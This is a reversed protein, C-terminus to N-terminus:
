TKVEITKNQFIKDLVTLIESIEYPKYIIWYAGLDILKKAIMDSVNATVMVVKANIDFQRIKELGYIGDYEPMMVDLFVVDPKLRTYLEYASRGNHRIGLVKIEHLELYQSFVDTIDVDDDVIIATIKSFNHEDNM